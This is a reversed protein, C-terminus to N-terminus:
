GIIFTLSRMKGAFIVILRLLHWEDRPHCLLSINSFTILLTREEQKVSRKEFRNARRTHLRIYFYGKDQHVHFRALNKALFRGVLLPGRGGGFNEGDDGQLAPRSVSIVADWVAM